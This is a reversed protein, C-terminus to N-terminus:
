RPCSKSLDMMRFLKRRGRGRVFGGGEFGGGGGGGAGGGGVGGGAGGGGGQGGFERQEFAM